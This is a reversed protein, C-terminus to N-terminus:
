LALQRLQAQPNRSRGAPDVPSPEKVPEDHLSPPPSNGQKSAQTQQDTEADTIERGSSGLGPWVRGSKGPGDLVVQVLAPSIGRLGAQRAEKQSPSPGSIEDM